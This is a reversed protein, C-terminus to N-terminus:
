EIENVNQRISNNNAKHITLLLSSIENAFKHFQVDILLFISFKFTPNISVSLIFSQTSLM